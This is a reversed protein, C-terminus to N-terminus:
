MNQAKFPAVRVGKRAFSRCLAAALLSKGASSSTGQVMLVKAPMPWRGCITRTTSAFWCRGKLICTLNPSHPQSWGCSGAPRPRRLDSAHVEHSRERALRQALLAAQGRGAASLPTDSHGQFRGEANWDTPAHPALLVRM